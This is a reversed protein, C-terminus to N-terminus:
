ETKRAEEAGAVSAQKSKRSCTVSGEMRSGKSAHASQRSCDERSLQLASDGLEKPRQPFMVKEM